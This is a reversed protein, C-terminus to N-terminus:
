VRVRGCKPKPTKGKRFSIYANRLIRVKALNQDALHGARCFEIVRKRSQRPKPRGLTCGRAEAGALSRRRQAPCAPLQPGSTTDSAPPLQLLQLVPPLPCPM